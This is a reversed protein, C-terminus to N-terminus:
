GCKSALFALSWLSHKSYILEATEMLSSSSSSKLKVPTELAGTRPWVRTRSVLFVRSWPRARDEYLAQWDCDSRHPSGSLAHVSPSHISPQLRPRLQFLNPHHWNQQESILLPMVRANTERLRWKRQLLLLGLESQLSPGCGQPHDDNKLSTQKGPLHHLASSPMAKDPLARTSCTIM